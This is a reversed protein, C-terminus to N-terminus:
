RNRKNFTTTLTINGTASDTYVLTNNGPQLKLWQKRTSSLTMAQFQNSNDLLWTIIHNYTDIELSSDLDMLFDLTIFDGTTSNKLVAELRYNGLETGNTVIPTETTDLHVQVESVEGCGNYAYLFMALVNATEWDSAAVPESWNEWTNNASCSTIQLQTSWFSANRVWYRLQLNYDDKNEALKKGGIWAANVIGCPNYLQWGQCFCTAGAGVRWAGIVPYPTAFTIQTATYVGCLGEDTIISDHIWKAFTYQYGRGFTTYNWQNNTSSTLDFAPKGYLSDLPATDAPKGYIVWVDHQIWYCITAATHSGLSTGKTARTIGTVTGAVLNRDTYTFAENDIMIIGSEPLLALEIQDTFEISIISGTAGIATKLELNPAQSYSLTFWVNTTATNIGTIWRYSEKGDSIIRLDNGDSRMKSASILTATDIVTKVTYFGCSNLSRWKVPLWFRNAYDGGVTTPKVTYIPFADCTGDNNIIKNAGSITLNWIDTIESVSRWKSDGSITFTVRFIEFGAVSNIIVPRASTCIAEKYRLNTIGDDSIVLHKLTEDEPDLWSLLQDRLSKVNNKDMITIYITITETERNLAGFIPSSGTRPLSVASVPSLGWEIGPTLGSRYNIGDNIDHGDWTNIVLM